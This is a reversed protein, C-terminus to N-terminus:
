SPAATGSPKATSSKPAGKAGAKPAPKRKAAPKRASTGAAAARATRTSGPTSAGTKSGGARTGAPAESTETTDPAKNEHDRRLLGAAESAVKRGRDVVGSIIDKPSPMTM